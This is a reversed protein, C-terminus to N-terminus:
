RPTQPALSLCWTRFYVKVSQKVRVDCILSSLFTQVKVSLSKSSNEKPLNSGTGEKSVPTKYCIFLSIPFVQQPQDQIRSQLRHGALTTSQHHSPNSGQSRDLLHGRYEHILQFDMSTWSSNSTAACTISKTTQINGVFPSCTNDWSNKMMCKDLQLGFRTKTAM